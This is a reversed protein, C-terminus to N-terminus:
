LEYLQIYREQTAGLLVRLWGANPRVTKDGAPSWGTRDAPNFHAVYSVDGGGGVPVDLVYDITAPGNPELRLLTTNGTAAASLQMLVYLGLADGSIGAHSSPWDALRIRAGYISGTISMLDTISANISIGRVNGAGIVGATASIEAGYVAGGAGLQTSDLKAGKFTGSLAASTMCFEIGELDATAGLAIESGSSGAMLINSGAEGVLTLTKLSIAQGSLPMDGTSIHLAAHNLGPPYLETVM